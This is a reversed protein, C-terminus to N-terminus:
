HTIKLVRRAMAHDESASIPKIKSKPCVGCKSKAWFFHHVLYASSLFLVLSVVLNELINQMM